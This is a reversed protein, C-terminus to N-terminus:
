NSKFQVVFTATGSVPNGKSTIGQINIQYQGQLDSAYCEIQHKENKKLTIEPEWLLLQRLDPIHKSNDIQKFSEPKTHPQSSLSQYKITPTKFQINNIELDKSFIALIGSFSMEGYHRNVPISEIRKIKSTGLNIIQNVDDIPVGDLFIAPEDNIKTQYQLNLFGSVFKDGTKRVKLAPVIEKSIEIFDPLELFDSPYITYYQKYYIRPITMSPLFKKETIIAAPKSYFKRVRAIKGIRKMYDKMGPVNYMDSPSFPHILRFKDDPIITSNVNEKLRVILEKGDYYPNLFFVFSGSSDTTTVQMNVISDIASVLLTYNKVSNTAKIKITDKGEVSQSMSSVEGQLIPGDIEPFFRCHDQNSEGTNSTIHNNGFYESISPGTTIGALIESISVSFHVISDNPINNSEISLSIKERQSFVQKDLHITLNENVNIIGSYQSSSISSIGPVTDPFLDIKEDFRNTIAIEKKFYAEEVENRMCNTYCVIQYIGSSLTDPLYISGFAMQDNIELRINSAYSNNKDRIILYAYKSMKGPNGQLYLTYFLYEGAIYLDRDTHLYVREPKLIEENRQASVPRIINLLIIITFLATKM